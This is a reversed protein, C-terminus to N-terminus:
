NFPAKRRKAMAYGMFLGAALGGSHALFNIGAGTTLFLLYLSYILAGIISGGFSRGLYAINAGLLGFIAGSAGASVFIPGWLLSLLNGVLGSAFYIALYTVENFLEEVKLGFVTLFVMNGVLHLFNVHVFMSSLLQWYWGKMVLLNFQGYLQLVWDRTWLFDGGIVSTFAYAGVNVAVLAGTPWKCNV